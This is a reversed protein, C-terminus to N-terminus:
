WAPISAGKRVTLIIEKVADTQYEKVIRNYVPNDKDATRVAIVNIYPNAKGEIQKELTLADRPPILGADIAHGVNIISATVDQMLRPTQAAEVPVFELNLPNATIDSIAPTPGASEPITLLGAAELVRLGRGENVLDNPLAIKDGKKIQSVSSIKKSYLGLPAIVTEGIPTIHYGKTKIENNLYAYHQFSNVEIEGDELARNPLVYDGFKVLEIKIGENILVKAVHDWEDTSDGTVGVRVVTVQKEAPAEQKNGGAFVPAQPSILGSVLVAALVVAIRKM